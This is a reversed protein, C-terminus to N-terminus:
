IKDRDDNSIDITIITNMGNGPSSVMNCQGKLSSIRSNIISLGMGADMVAKPNFGKGNDKYNIFIMSDEYFLKLSIM